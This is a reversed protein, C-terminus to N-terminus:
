QKLIDNIEIGSLRSDSLDINVILETEDESVEVSYWRVSYHKPDIKMYEQSLRVAEQELLEMNEPTNLLRIEKM